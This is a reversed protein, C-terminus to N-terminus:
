KDFFFCFDNKGKEFVANSHSLATLTGEFSTCKIDGTASSNCFVFYFNLYNSNFLFIKKYALKYTKLGFWSSTFNAFSLNNYNVFEYKKTLM